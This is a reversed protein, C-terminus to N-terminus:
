SMLRTYVVLRQNYNRTTRDFIGNCTILNLNPTTAAGFIQHLPANDYPYSASHSVDFTLIRKGPMEVEVRDGPVLKRLNWFVAAGVTVWDLHGDIVANGPEGPLVGLDFWATWFPNSPSGMAGDPDLGVSEVPADVGIKPIRLNIPAGAKRFIQSTTSRVPSTSASRAAPAAPTPSPAVTPLLTPTAPPLTPAVTPTDPVATATAPRPAAVTPSLEPGVKPSLEPNRHDTSVPIVTPSLPPITPTTVIARTSCGLLLATSSSLTVLLSRRSSLQRLSWTRSRIDSM